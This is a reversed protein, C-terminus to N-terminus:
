KLEAMLIEHIVELRQKWLEKDLRKEGGALKDLAEHAFKLDDLMELDEDEEAKEQVVGVRKVM